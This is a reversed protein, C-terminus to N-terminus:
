LRNNHESASKKRIDECFDQTESTRHLGESGFTSLKGLEPFATVYHVETKAWPNGAAKRLSITNLYM